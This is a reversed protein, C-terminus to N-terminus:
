NSQKDYEMKLKVYDYGEIRGVEIVKNNEVRIFIQTPLSEVNYMNVLKSNTHEDVDIHAIRLLPMLNTSEEDMLKKKLLKCPGCWEAGFYLLPIYGSEISDLIFDDLDNIGYIENMNQM